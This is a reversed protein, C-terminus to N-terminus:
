VVLAIQAKITVGIADDDGTMYDKLLGVERERFGRRSRCPGIKIEQLLKSVRHSNV